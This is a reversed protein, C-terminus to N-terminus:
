VFLSTNWVELCTDMFFDMGFIWVFDRCLNRVLEITSDMSVM